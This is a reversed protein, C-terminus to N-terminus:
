RRRRTVSRHLERLTEGKRWGASRAARLLHLPSGAPCDDMRVRSAPVLMGRRHAFLRATWEAGAYWGFRRPDPPPVDLVLEREVLLSTVPAHRLPLRHRAVAQLIGPADSETIRGMLAEIPRDQADVPLSAAPGPAHRLLEGLADDSPTADTDLLWLLPTPADAAQACVADLSEPDVAITTVDSM